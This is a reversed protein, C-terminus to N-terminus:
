AQGRVRQSAKPKLEDLRVNRNDKLCAIIVKNVFEAIRNRYQTGMQENMESHTLDYCDSVGADNMM